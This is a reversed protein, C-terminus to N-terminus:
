FTLSSTSNLLEQARMRSSEFAELRKVRAQHAKRLAAGRKRVGLRGRTRGHGDDDDDDGEDDYGDSDVNYADKRRNTRTYYIDANGDVLGLNYKGMLGREYFASFANNRDDLIQNDLLYSAGGPTTYISVDDRYTSNPNDGGFTSRDSIVQRVDAIPKTYQTDFPNHRNSTTVNLLSRDFLPSYNSNFERTKRYSGIRTDFYGTAVTGSKKAGLLASQGPERYVLKNGGGTLKVVNKFFTYMANNEISASVLNAQTARSQVITNRNFDGGGRYKGSSIRDGLTGGGTILKNSNFESTAFLAPKNKNLIMFQVFMTLIGKSDLHNSCNIIDNLTLKPKGQRSYLNILSLTNEASAKFTENLLFELKGRLLNPYNTTLRLINRQIKAKRVDSPLMVKKPSEITGGRLGGSSQILAEKNILFAWKLNPSGKIDPLELIGEYEESEELHLIPDELTIGTGNTGSSFVIKGEELKNLLTDVFVRSNSLYEEHGKGDDKNKGYKEKIANILKVYSDYISKAATKKSIPEIADLIKKIGEDSPTTTQIPPTLKRKKTDNEKPFLAKSAGTVASVMTTLEDDTGMYHLEQDNIRRLTEALHKLMEGALSPDQEYIEEILERFNGQDLEADIESIRRVKILSHLENEDMQGLSALYASAFKVVPKAMDIYKAKLKRLLYSSGGGFPDKTLMWGNLSDYTAKLNDGDGGRGGGYDPTPATVKKAGTVGGGLGLEKRLKSEGAKGIYDIGYKSSKGENVKFAADKEGLIIEDESSDNLAYDKSGAKYGSKFFETERQQQNEDSRVGSLNQYNLSINGNYKEQIARELASQGDVSHRTEYQMVDNDINVKNNSKSVTTKEVKTNMHHLQGDQVDFPTKVVNRKGDM